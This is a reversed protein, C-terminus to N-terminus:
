LTQSGLDPPATGPGLAEALQRIREAFEVSTWAGVETTTLKFCGGDARRLEVTITSGPRQGYRQRLWSVVGAVLVSIAGGYGLSVTLAELAGGLTGPAQNEQVLAVRGRLEDEQVLWGRLNRLEDLDANALTITLGAVRGHSENM